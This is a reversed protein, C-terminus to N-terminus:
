LPSSSTLPAFLTLPLLLPYSLNLLYSPSLPLILPLFFPKSFYSFM